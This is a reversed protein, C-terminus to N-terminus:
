MGAGIRMQKVKKKDEVVLGRAKLVQELAEMVREFSSKAGKEQTFRAIAINARRGRHLLTHFEAAISLSPIHLATFSNAHDDYTAIPQSIFLFFFLSLPLPLTWSHFPIQRPLSRPFDRTCNKVDVRAWIRGATKDVVIDRMGYKRWERFVGAVEKRARVKSVQFCMVNIAPKIRLLRALWNQPQPVIVRAVQPPPMMADELSNNQGHKNPKLVGNHSANQLAGSMYGHQPNYNFTSDETVLSDADGLDYDGGAPKESEKSDHKNSFIKFFRAKGLGKKHESSQSGESPVDSSRNRSKQDSPHVYLLTQQHSKVPLLPGEGNDRSRQVPQHRRFWKRKRPEPFETRRTAPDFNEKDDDEDIPELSSNELLALGASRPREVQQKYLDETTFLRETPLIPRPSGASPTSSESKKRITLPKVPSIPRLGDSSDVVRITSLTHSHYQRKSPESASRLGFNNKEMIQEFTDKRQIGSNPDPTSVARREEEHLRITSPQMLRDLHAIIEDLYGPSMTAEAARKKLLDRTKALERQTYSGLHESDMQRETAPPLPLPRQKYDVEIQRAKNHRTVSVPVPDEHVSFSTAPSSYTNQSFRNGTAETRPTPISSAIPSRNFADDCLKEIEVSVKRADDKWYHSAVRPKKATHEKIPSKRSRVVPRDQSRPIEKMSASPSMSTEKTKAHSQSQDRVFREQLTFPSTHHEQSRLRPHRGSFSRKRNHIFSVNRKYSTSKRTVVVSSNSRVSRRSSLTMRSNGQSIQRNTMMRQLQSPGASHMTMSQPPSSAISYVDETGRTRAIAPNRASSTSSLQTSPKRSGDHSAVRLLTIRAQDAQAKAIQARSPRYPDYSEETEAVSAQRHVSQSHSKRPPAISQGLISYQSQPRQSRSTQLSPKTSSRRVVRQQPPNHHYDSTSYEIPPGQYNELQEDRFRLLKTYLM